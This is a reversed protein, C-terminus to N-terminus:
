FFRWTFAVVSEIKLTFFVEADSEPVTYNFPEDIDENYM